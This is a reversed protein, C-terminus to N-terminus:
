VLESGELLATQCRVCGSRPPECKKLGRSMNEEGALRASIIYVSGRVVRPDASSHGPAPKKKIEGAHGAWEEEGLSPTSNQHSSRLPLVAAATPSLDRLLSADSSDASHFLSLLFSSAPGSQECLGSGPRPFCAAAVFWGPLETVDVRSRKMSGIELKFALAKGTKSSEGCFSIM